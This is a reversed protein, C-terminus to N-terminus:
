LVWTPKSTCVSQLISHSQGTNEPTYAGTGATAAMPRLAQPPWLRGDKSGRLYCHAQEASHQTHIQLQTVRHEQERGTGDWLLTDVLSPESGHEM